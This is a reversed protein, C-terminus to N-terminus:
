SLRDLTISLTISRPCREVPRSCIIRFGQRAMRVSFGAVPVFIAQKGNKGSHEWEPTESLIASLRRFDTPVFERVLTASLSEM